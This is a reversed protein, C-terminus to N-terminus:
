QVKKTEVHFGREDQWGTPFYKIVYFLIGILAFSTAIYIIIFHLM